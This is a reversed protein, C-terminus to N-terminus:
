GEFATKMLEAINEKDLTTNGNASKQLKKGYSTM